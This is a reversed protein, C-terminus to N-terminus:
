GPGAPPTITAAAMQRGAFRGLHAGAALGLETCAWVLADLRDPSYTAQDPVWETLQDELRPLTGVHHVRGQEYVASVPEARVRKGRSAHLVKIRPTSTIADAPDLEGAEVAAAHEELLASAAASITAQAMDGGFNTEVCILDAQHDHWALVAQRGWGDPSLRCTRDDLVYGHGGLRGREGRPAVTPTRGVVVIGQEGAGGSPDVGVVVRSLPPVQDGRIRDRALQGRRWLAGPVEDLVMAHLEQQGLTTGEYADLVEARFTPALNPLNDYTSGQTVVV